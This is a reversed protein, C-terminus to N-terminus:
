GLPKIEEFRWPWVDFVLKAGAPHGPRLEAFEVGRLAPWTRQLWVVERQIAAAMSAANNGRRVRAIYRQLFPYLEAACGTRGYDEDYMRAHAMMGLEHRWDRLVGPCNRPYDGTV